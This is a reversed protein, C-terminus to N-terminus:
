RGFNQLLRDSHKELEPFGAISALAAQPCRTV